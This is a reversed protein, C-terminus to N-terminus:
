CFSPELALLKWISCVRRDILRHRHGRSRHHPNAAVGKSPNRIQIGGPVHIDTQRDTQRNTTHHRTSTEPDPQDTTCQLELSHTDSLVILHLLLVRCEVILLHFLSPYPSGIPTTIVCTRLHNNFSCSNCISTLYQM